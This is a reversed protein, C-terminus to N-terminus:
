GMSPFAFAEDSSQPITKFPLFHFTPTFCQNRKLLSDRQAKCVASYASLFNAPYKKFSSLYLSLPTQAFAKKYSVTISATAQNQTELLEEIQTAEKQQLSANFVGESFAFVGLVFAVVLLWKPPKNSHYATPTKTM